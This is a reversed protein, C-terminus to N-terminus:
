VIPTSVNGVLNFANLSMTVPAFTTNYGVPDSPFVVDYVPVLPAVLGWPLAVNFINNHVQIQGNAPISTPLGLTYTYDVYVSLNSSVNFPNPDDIPPNPNTIQNNEILIPTITSFNFPTTPPIFTITPGPRDLQNVVNNSVNISINTNAALNFLVFHSFRTMTNNQIIFSANTFTDTPTNVQFIIADQSSPGGSFTNGSINMTGTGSRLEIAHRNFTHIFTSNLISLNSANIISLRKTGGEIIVNDFTINDYLGNGPAHNIRLLSVDDAGTITPSNFHLNKITVNNAAIYFNSEVPPNPFEVVTNLASLGTITLSKNVTIPSTETFTGPFVILTNGSNAGDIAPQIDNYFVGKNVNLVRGSPTTRVFDSPLTLGGVPCFMCDTSSSTLFLTCSQNSCILTEECMGTCPECIIDGVAIGNCTGTTAAVEYVCSFPVNIQPINIPKTVWDYVKPVKICLNENQQHAFTKPNQDFSNSPQQGPIICKSLSINQRPECFQSEMSVVIDFSSQVSLCFDITILLGQFIDDSFVAMSFCHFDTFKCTVQTRNPACLLIQITKDFPETHKTGNDLVTTVYGEILIKVRQLTARSGNPLVVSKEPRSNESTLEKCNISGPLNPDLPLGNEDSLFCSVVRVM